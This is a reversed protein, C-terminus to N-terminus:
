PSGVGLGVDVASAVSGNYANHVAFTPSLFAFGSVADICARQAESREARGVCKLTHRIVEFTNSAVPDAWRVKRSCFLLKDQAHDTSRSDSQPIVM